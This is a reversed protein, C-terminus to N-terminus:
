FSKLTSLSGEDDFPIAAAPNVAPAHAKASPGRSGGEARSRDKSRRDRIGKVSGGSGDTLQFGAVMSQMEEAQSSLEEAASASEESNAANQQTLQDMEGVATTVQEIGQNQQESSLAIESMVESVKNVQQNIERLNALVEGNISVGGEANKVSEEILNATNKAAEASRMALNRVEEAVVAFGKGADGARAAEVAANLALLNTQFAIEDITKVIKATQDSSVKIKDVAASLREMSAVGTDSTSRASEALGRAEQANTANQRTMSAMEQLSSSIEELSAAQESAGQSLSQSGTSIQVSASAVQEAGINVQQLGEDLNDVATNIAQKIRGMDGNYTGKVRATLDKNAVREMVESAENIPGVVADLTNNFGEIIKRYEGQHKSADARTNLQGAVGAAALREADVVLRNIAEMMEIYAPLLTDQESRKGVKELAALDSAFDGKAVSHSIRIANVIRSQATNTSEAVEAFVGQYNGNVTTTYDNVAMRNLVKNAETLGGLGDICANLNNKITNFDGNYNDTIKEPIDGKGIRDVYDAAVNLPGVVADLTSNIGEVMEKFSYQYKSADARTELRGEKAAAVLTMIDQNLTLLNKKVNDVAATIQAKKGPLRDMDVSLDGMAYRGVVEVVRMKVAIHSQVLTNIGAAMDAYAGHFKDVPIVEDIMGLDHQRSVEESAALLGNLEDICTNLNNKIINFDGNYTDTIRAPLDGKSIRDVYDAAVNLPGIVADLCDNVGQVIKRFDGQHKSADARTDLRGEVAAVSLTNADAVLANINEMLLILAPALEDNESRKGKGNGIQRFRPLDETNGHAINTVATRVAEIRSRVDNVATAVEGFVGQYSGEVSKTYDNEAMRHLVANAEILGGLGDICNNVSTQLDRFQGHYTDTNKEPIDGKSIRNIYEAAGQLPGVVADLTDNIGQVIKAYDGQHKTADARTDLRGELAAVNLTNADEVMSGIASKVDELTENIKDFHGKTEATFSDAEQAKPVFSLDGKSLQILNSAVRDVEKSTYEKVRIIQTLDTVVEVYGVKQGHVNLVHSTDQKCNMGCWDFFSEKTGKQLQRIGCKETNCINANATSCPRGVADQRDRVCGQDVMLKEFAKNLFTWKMDQDIVHVPFPVADIIAKYWELKDVVSDLTDNVGQVIERYGGDFKAANGRTELRGEVAAKVLSGAEDVLDRLTAVVGKMSKALVDKDSSAVVEVSLDGAAIREAIASQERINNAVAAFAGAVRGIEDTFSTDIDVDVDGIAVKDAAAKLAGLRNAMSRAIYFGLGLAVVTGALMLFILQSAAKSSAASIASSTTKAEAACVETLKDLSAREARAADDGTSAMLAAAAKKNGSTILSTIKQAIASWQNNATEFNRYADKMASSEIVNNLEAATTKETAELQAVKDLNTSMGAPNTALLAGQLNVRIRQSVTGLTTLHALSLTSHEYLTNDAADISHISSVGVCGIGAAIVAMLTFGGLLKARTSLNEFWTMTNNEKSCRIHFKTGPLTFNPENARPTISDEM